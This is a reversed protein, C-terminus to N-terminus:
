ININLKNEIFTRVAPVLYHNTLGYNSLGEAITKSQYEVPKLNNIVIVKDERVRCNGGNFDGKGKVIRIEMREALDLLYELITEPNM